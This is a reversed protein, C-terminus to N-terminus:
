PNRAIGANAWMMTEELSTLALSLERGAPVAGALEIALQKCLDRIHQHREGKEPSAPHFEFDNLIRPLLDM